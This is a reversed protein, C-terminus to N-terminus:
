NGSFPSPKPVIPIRIDGRALGDLIRHEMLSLFTGDRRLSSAPLNPLISRVVDIMEPEDFTATSLYRIFNMRLGVSVFHEAPNLGTSRYLITEEGFDRAREADYAFQHTPGAMSGILVDIWRECRRHLRDIERAYRFQPQPVRMLQWLVANRIRNLGNSANRALRTADDGSGRTITSSLATGWVRVLMDCAFVRSALQSLRELGPDSVYVWQDLAQTWRQDLSRCSQWFLQLSAPQPVTFDNANRRGVRCILLSLEALTRPSLGCESLPM